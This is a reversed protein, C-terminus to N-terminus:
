AGVSLGTVSLSYSVLGGKQYTVTVSPLRTLALTEREEVTFPLVELIRQVLDQAHKERRQDAWLVIKFAARWSRKYLGVGQDIETVHVSLYPRRTKSPVELFVPLQTQAALQDCLKQMITSIM